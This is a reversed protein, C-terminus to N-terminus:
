VAHSEQPEHELDRRKAELGLKRGSNLIVSLSSAMMAAAALIPHVWGAVALPILVANYAFAWFLNQRIRKV